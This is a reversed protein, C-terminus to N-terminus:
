ACSATREGVVEAFLKTGCEDLMVDTKAYVVTDEDIPVHTLLMRRCCVRGLGLNDLARKEDTRRREVLYSTWLHGVM